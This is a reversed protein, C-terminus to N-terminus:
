GALAKDIVANTYLAQPDPLKALGADNLAKAGSAWLAPVNRLLNNRGQALWLGRAEEISGVLQDVNRIGPIEFDRAAREYIPRLPQTLLEDVSARMARLFRLARDGHRDVEDRTTVYCQGPMPVYKDTSWSVIKEHARELAAVVETSAIFCDVRGQRALQLTGPSNGTVQRPVDDRSLGVKRLVLDLLIETAGGVSVVGVMKGKLEEASNIPKEAPSIMRFTGAQYLTAISILPLAQQSGVARMTDIGAARIYQATGAALQQIAQASGHGGLVKADLGQTKFHGGSYANMLDIFDGIFGFPTMVTVPELSQARARRAAGIAFVAAAAKIVHRRSLLNPM